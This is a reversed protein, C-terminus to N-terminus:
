DRIKAALHFIHLYFFQKKQLFKFFLFLELSVIPFIKFFLSELLLYIIAGALSALISLILITSINEKDATYRNATINMSLGIVGAFVNIVM